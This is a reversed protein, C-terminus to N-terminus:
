TRLSLVSRTLNQRAVAEYQQRFYDTHYIALRQLFIDLIAARGQRFAAEPVMAYEQRIQAEYEEFRTAPQGLIALDIDVMLQADSTTPPQDHKTARILAQVRQRVAAAIGAQELEQEAWAASRQENDKALPEYVADHFWLPIEVEDPHEALSRAAALEELCHCLHTVNHYARHPESYAQYLRTFVPEPPTTAGLRQWLQAFAFPLDVM